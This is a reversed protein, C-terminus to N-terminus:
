LYSPCTLYKGNVPKFKRIVYIISLEFAGKGKSATRLKSTTMDYSLGMYFTQYTMGVTIFGADKNRYWMGAHFAMSSNYLYRGSMGTVLNRSKGQLSYLFGPILDIKQFAKFQFNGHLNYRRQLREEGNDITNKAGILNYAALGVDLRNRADLDYTYRLGAAMTVWSVSNRSFNEGTPLSPDFKGVQENYQNDFYLSNMNLSQMVVSPQLGFHIKHASDLTLPYSYAGSIQFVTTTYRSDGTQDSFLAAGLGLDRVKAANAVDASIGFTRYPVTISNWQNRYNGIIRYDGDFAGTFSPNLNFPASLYQSFHIDQASITTAMLLIVLGSLMLVRTASYPFNLRM